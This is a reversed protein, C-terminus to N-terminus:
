LSRSIMELAFTQARLKQFLWCLTPTSALDTMVIFITMGDFADLRGDVFLAFTGTLFCSLHEKHLALLLKYVTQANPFVVPRFVTICSTTTDGTCLQLQGNTFEYDFSGDFAKGNILM